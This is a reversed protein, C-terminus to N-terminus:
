CRTAYRDLGQPVPCAQWSQQGSPRLYQFASGTMNELYSLDCSTLKYKWSMWVWCMDAWMASIALFRDQTNNLVEDGFRDRCCGCGTRKCWINEAQFSEGSAVHLLITQLLHIEYICYIYIIGQTEAWIQRLRGKLCGCYSLRRLILLSLPVWKVNFTVSM